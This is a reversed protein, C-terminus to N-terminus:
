IQIAHDMCEAPHPPAAAGIPKAPVGAVTIRPPVDKLVVSGAAIRADEGIVINGLVKAGAGILVGRRIKPHRDGREKGSGGLTVGQLISVDDDIVCTEGIIVGTAHDIFIGNGLRAAPHIDVQFLESCRSQIHYALVTRERHWLWHAVRHAQLAAFGKFFLFPQLLTRCAPDRTTVADLDHLFAQLLAPTHQMADHVAAKVIGAALDPSALRHDLFHALADPFAAHDLIHAHLMARLPPEARAAQEAEQRLRPWFTTFSEHTM